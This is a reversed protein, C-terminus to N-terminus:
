TLSMLTTQFRDTNFDLARRQANQSLELIKEPEGILELTQTVLEDVTNWLFGTDPTVIEPQGGKNIVVPVCGAAMAEVTSMGFHEVAEPNLVEDVEFGASHWFISSHAYLQRLHDFEPNVEFEIPYGKAQTMFTKLQTDSGTQGGALVLKWDTLGGDVLQKFASILVDQRKSHSPSTFRGVNLIIPQKKGPTFSTTDIPPYLVISKTTHLTRDIVSKTFTSNVVIHNISLLKLRNLWVSRNISTFPVQYHLLTKKGFLIPVSGDSVIFVLDIDKLASFRSLISNKQSFLNYYEASLELGELPLGFRTTAQKLTAQDRWALIVQYGQNLLTQAVTLTYREGGGLTDLYPDFVVATKPQSDLM